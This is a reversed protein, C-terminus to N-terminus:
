PAGGPVTPLRKPALWEADTEPPLSPETSLADPDLAAVDRGIISRFCRAARAAVQHQRNQTLM